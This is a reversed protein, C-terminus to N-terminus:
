ILDQSKCLFSIDAGELFRNLCRMGDRLKRTEDTEIYDVKDRFKRPQVKSSWHAEEKVTRTLVIVEEAGDRTFDEKTVGFEEVKNRFWPTPVISSVEGRIAKAHHVALFNVDELMLVTPRMMKGLVDSEYRTRGKRGNGLKTAIKGTPPPELVAYALNCVIAEVRLRHTAEDDPRRARARAKTHSEHHELFRITNEVIRRLGGESKARLWQDFWRHKEPEFYEWKHVKITAGSKFIKTEVEPSSAPTDTSAARGEVPWTKM